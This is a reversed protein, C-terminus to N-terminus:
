DETITNNYQEIAQIEGANVFRLKYGNFEILSYFTIFLLFFLFTGTWFGVATDDHVAVVILGLMLLSCVVTAVLEILM